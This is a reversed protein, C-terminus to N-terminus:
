RGEEVAVGANAIRLDPNWLGEGRLLNGIASAGAAVDDCAEFGADSEYLSLCFHACDHRMEVDKVGCVISAPFGEDFAEVVGSGTGNTQEHADKESGDEEYEEDGAAVGGIKEECAGGASGMFEADAGDEACPAGADDALEEGFGEEEAGGGADCTDSECVDEEMKQKTEVRAVDWTEVFGGEVRGNKEESEADGEEGAKEESGERREREGADVEDFEEFRSAVTANEVCAVPEAACEDDGLDSEDEDKESSCTQEKAAEEIDRADRSAERLGGDGHVNAEVGTVSGAGLVSGEEVGEEVFEGGSRADGGGSGDTM